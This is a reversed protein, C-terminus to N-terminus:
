VSVSRLPRSGTEPRATPPCSANGPCSASAGGGGEGDALRKQLAFELRARSGDTRSGQHLYAQIRIEADGEAEAERDRSYGVPQTSGSHIGAPEAEAFAESSIIRPAEDVRELTLGSSSLWHNARGPTPVFRNLRPEVPAGWGGRGDPVRVGIRVRGDELRQASIRLQQEVAAASGRAVPGSWDAGFSVAIVAAMGLLLTVIALLRGRHHRRPQAAGGSAQKPRAANSGNMLRLVRWHM